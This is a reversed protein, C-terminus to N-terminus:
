GPAPALPEVAEPVDFSPRGVRRDVPYVELSERWDRALGPLAEHPASPDLWVGAEEAGLLVPMRDHVDSLGPEADKTLIAYGSGEEWLGAFLMAGGERMRAFYPQKAGDEEAWEFWGSAPVACRRHKWAARFYPKEAASEWRANIMPGGKTAWAPQLGWQMRELHCVGNQLAVLGLQTPAINYRPEWEHPELRGLLRELEEHEHFFAYRGCM